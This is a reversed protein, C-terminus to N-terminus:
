RGARKSLDLFSAEDTVDRPVKNSVLALMGVVVTVPNPSVAIFSLGLVTWLLRQYLRTFRKPSPLFFLAALIAVAILCGAIRVAPLVPILRPMGILDAVFGRSLWVFVSATIRGRFRQRSTMAVSFSRQQRMQWLCLCLVFGGIATTLAIWTVWAPGPAHYVFRASGGGTAYPGGPLTEEIPNVCVLMLSGWGPLEATEGITLDHTYWNDRDGFVAAYEVTASQEDTRVGVFISFWHLDYEPDSNLRVERGGFAWLYSGAYAWMGGVCAALIIIQALGFWLWGIVGGNRRDSATAANESM